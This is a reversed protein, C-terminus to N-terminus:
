NGCARGDGARCADAAARWAALDRVYRARADAYAQDPANGQADHWAQWGQAYGADRQQVYALQDRNMRAIAAHDRARAAPDRMTPDNPDDARSAAPLAATALALTIAFARAIM